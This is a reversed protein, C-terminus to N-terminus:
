QSWEEGSLQKYLGKLVRYTETAQLNARQMDLLAFGIHIMEDRKLYDLVATDPAPTM